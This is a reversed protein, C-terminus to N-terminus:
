SVSTLTCSVPAEWERDIDFDNRKQFEQIESVDTRSLSSPIELHLELTNELISASYVPPTPLSINLGLDLNQPVDSPNM